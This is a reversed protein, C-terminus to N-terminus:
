CVHFLTSPPFAFTACPDLKSVDTPAGSNGEPLHPQQPDPKVEATSANRAADDQEAAHPDRAVAAICEPPELPPLYPVRRLEEPVGRGETGTGDVVRQQLAAGQASHPPSDAPEGRHHAHAGEEQVGQEPEQWLHGPGPNPNLFKLTYLKPNLVPKEEAIPMFQKM